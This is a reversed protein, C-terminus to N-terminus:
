VIVMPMVNIKIIGTAGTENGKVVIYTTGLAIASTQDAPTVVGDNSVIAVSEDLSKFTYGNDRVKFSGTILNFSPDREVFIENMDISLIESRLINVEYPMPDDDTYQKTIDTYDGNADRRIIAGSNMMVTDASRGIGVLVPIDKDVATGDGLQGNANNGISYVDGNSRLIASTNDGSAIMITDTVVSNNDLDDLLEVAM